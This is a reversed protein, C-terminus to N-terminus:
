RAAKRKTAKRTQNRTRSSTGLGRKRPLAKAAPVVGRAAIRLARNGERVAEGRNDCPGVIKDLGDDSYAYWGETEKVARM